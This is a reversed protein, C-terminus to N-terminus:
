GFLGSGNGAGAGAGAGAGTLDAGTPQEPAGSSEGQPANEDAFEADSYGLFRAALRPNETAATIKDAADAMIARIRLLERKVNEVPVGAAVLMEIATEQSIANAQLLLAILTAIGNLDQPMFTGLAIGAPYVETDGALTEDGAQISIRQQMKLLLRHKRNRSLRAVLIMQQFPTFSLQLSIGSPVESADVKGVLGDPVSTVVTAQKRLRDGYDGLAPLSGGMQVVTLKGDPSLRLGIGPAIEVTQGPGSGVLGSIGVLPRASWRAALAEEVDAGAIEDFLQCPRVLPSRGFHTTSAPTHPVHVVPIFDLGIPRRNWEFVEADVAPDDPNVKETAYVADNNLGDVQEFSDVPFTADTMVCVERWADGEGHYAPASLPVGAAQALLQGDALSVLEYTIRRVFEEEEADPNDEEGPPRAMFNWVLDVRKPFDGPRADDLAPFYVDPEYIDLRVRGAEGDWGLVYIGSGLPCINERENETMLDVLGVADAWARLWEQRAQLKPARERAELWDEFQQRAQEEWAEVSAEYIEERLRQVLEHDQSASPPPAPEPDLEPEAPITDGAGDVLITQDEGLVGSAIRDVFTAPDALERWEDAKDPRDPDEALHWRTTCDMMARLVMYANVRRADREGLYKPAALSADGQGQMIPRHSLPAWMDQILDTEPM